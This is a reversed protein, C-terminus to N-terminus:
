HCHWVLAGDSDVVPLGSFKRKLMTGIAEIISVDPSISVPDLTMVDAPRM